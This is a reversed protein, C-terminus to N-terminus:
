IQLISLPYIKRYFDFRSIIFAFIAKCTHVFSNKAAKLKTILSKIGIISVARRLNYTTAVFAFEATVKEIGKLLTYYYGWSRKITGFPHEVIAQRRKYINKGEPTNYRADNQEVVEEFESREITRGHSQEVQSKSLCTDNFPCNQCDKFDARYLKYQHSIISHRDKKDHLKGSSMLTKDNPCTYSDTEKNYIFKDKTFDSDKGSFAREIPPVFTIINNDKCLQM